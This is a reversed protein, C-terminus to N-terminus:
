RFYHVSFGALSKRLRELCKFKQVTASRITRYSNQEAITAMSQGFYYFSTLIGRCKQGLQDVFYILELVPQESKEPVPEIVPNSEATTLNKQRQKKELEQHWLNKCIGMLYTTIQATLQFQEQMVKEYFVIIAEQLLDQADAPQGEHQIVYHLVKPYTLAYIQTLAKERNATFAQRWDTNTVSSLVTQM